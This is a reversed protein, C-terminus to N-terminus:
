FFADYPHCRIQTCALAQEYLPLHLDGGGPLLAGSCEANQLLLIMCVSVFAAQQLISNVETARGILYAFRYQFSTAGPRASQKEIYLLTCTSSLELLLTEWLIYATRGFRGKISMNHGYCAHSCDAEPLVLSPLEQIKKSQTITSARSLANWWSTLDHMKLEDYCRNSLLLRFKSSSLLEKSLWSLSM